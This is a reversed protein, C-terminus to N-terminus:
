VAGPPGIVTGYIDDVAEAREPEIEPTGAAALQAQFTEWDIEPDEARAEAFRM